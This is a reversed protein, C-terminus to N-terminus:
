ASKNGTNTRIHLALLSKARELLQDGLTQLSQLQASDLGALLKNEFAIASAVTEAYLREGLGTLRLASRRRDGAAVQRELYGCNRLRAVARSVAVKDLQTRRAVEAACADPLGGVVVIVRWDQSSLGDSRRQLAGSARELFGALVSIRFPLFHELVFGSVDAGDELSFVSSM